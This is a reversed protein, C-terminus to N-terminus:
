QDALEYYLLGTVTRGDRVEGALVDARLEDYAVTTPRISENFDLNQDSDPTCGTAVFYHHVSNAFGNAPEVTVLPEIGGAEYGTEEALERRAAEALDTDHDETGGAPLGRNVRGVAQRWEDIVVVDGDPTFPLIVVAPPEDVFHFDTETGDPLRVDDMRVDFGPCSYDIRTDTTEWALDSADRPAASDASDDTM